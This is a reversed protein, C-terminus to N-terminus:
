ITDSPPVDYADGLEFLITGDDTNGRLLPPPSFVHIPLGVEDPPGAIIHANFSQHLANALQNATTQDTADPENVTDESRIGGPHSAPLLVHRNFNRCIENLLTLLCPLDTANVTTTINTVDATVQADTYVIHENYKEKLSNALVICTILDIAPAENVRNPFYTNILSHRGRTQDGPLLYARHIARPYIANKITENFTSVMSPIMCSVLSNLLSEFQGGFSGSASVESDLVVLGNATPVLRTQIRIFSSTDLYNLIQFGPIYATIVLNVTPLFQTHPINGFRTSSGPALSAYVSDGPHWLLSVGLFHLKESSPFLPTIKAEVLRRLDSLRVAFSHRAKVLLVNDVIDSHPIHQHIDSIVTEQSDRFFRRQLFSQNQMGHFFGSSHFVIVLGIEPNDDVKKHPYITISRTHNFTTCDLRFHGEHWFLENMLWQTGAFHYRHESDGWLTLSRGTQNAESWLVAGIDIPM